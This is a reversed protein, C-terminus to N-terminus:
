PQVPNLPIYVIGCVKCARPEIWAGQYFMLTRSSETYAPIDAPQAYMPQPKQKHGLPCRETEDKVQPLAFLSVLMGVFSRRDSMAERKRERGASAASSGFHSYAAIEGM